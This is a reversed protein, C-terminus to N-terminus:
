AASLRFTVQNRGSGKSDLLALDAAEVVQDASQPCPNAGDSVAVGISVTVTLALGSSLRIPREEVARCLREAVIRALGMGADPLAVLFEEGGVRALLDTPRLNATLRRSVEILVQDGVGHGHQDNVLKFRDLDVVMVAFPARAAASRAAIGALQPKAYRRNYLGTLPDVMALRLNDEIRARSQDGRRKRRILSRTRLALEAGSVDPGVVDDAGLDFAIAAEDGEGSRGLVCVASHRTAQHSKLESIFRLTGTTDSGDDQLIFVDPASVSGADALAGEALAQPRSLVLLRDGLEGALDRQLRRVLDGEGAVVAVTAHREFGAAPEAFGPALVAGGPIDVRVRARLLNRVRALLMADGAPKGIVDDAGAAFAALRVASDVLATLAIVPIDRTVPNERLRRLVDHGSIDPLMLDLLILDPLLEAAMALGEAGSAAVLPEYFAAALRSRYLIRNTAIDDVILIRGSMGQWRM